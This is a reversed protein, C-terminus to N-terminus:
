IEPLHTIEEISEPSGWDKSGNETIILEGKSNMIFTTPLAYIGLSEPSTNLQVFQLNFNTKSKFKKIKEISENSALILIYENSPLNNQLQELSPMESICPKCWTAWVNLIVTKGKQEALSLQNGELDTLQIQDSFVSTIANDDQNIDSSDDKNESSTCQCFIIVLASLILKNM